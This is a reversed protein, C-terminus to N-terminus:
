YYNYRFIDDNKEAFNERVKMDLQVTFGSVFNISFSDDIYEKIPDSYDEFDFYASSILFSLSINDIYDYIEKDSKWPVGDANTGNWKTFEVDIYRFDLSYGNGVLNVDLSKPCIFNYEVLRNAFSSNMNSFSLNNWKDYGLEENLNGIWFSGTLNFYIIMIWQIWM